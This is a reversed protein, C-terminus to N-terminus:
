NFKENCMLSDIVLRNYNSLNYKGKEYTITNNKEKEGPCGSRTSVKSIFFNNNIFDIYIEYDFFCAQGLHNTLKFGEESKEVSEAGTSGLGWENSIINDYVYLKNKLKILLLRNNKDEVIDDLNENPLLGIPSLIILTDRIMDHNIDISVFNIDSYYKSICIGYKSYYTNIQKNIFSNTSRFKPKISDVNANNINKKSNNVCAACLSVVVCLFFLKM